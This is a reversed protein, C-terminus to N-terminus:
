KKDGQRESIEGGLASYAAKDVWSDEHHINQLLRVTKLWDMMLAVHAPTIKGSREHARNVIINWGYAILAHTDFADGYEKARDNNILDKATDLVWDRNM